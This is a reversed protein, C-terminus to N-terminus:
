IVSFPFLYIFNELPKLHYGMTADGQSAESSIVPFRGNTFLYKPRDTDTAKGGGITVRKATLLVQITAVLKRQIYGLPV